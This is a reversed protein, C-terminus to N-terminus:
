GWDDDGGAPPKTPPLKERVAKNTEEASAVAGGHRDPPQEFEAPTKVWKVVAFSPEYNTTKQGGSGSAVYWSGFRRQEPTKTLSFSGALARGGAARGM